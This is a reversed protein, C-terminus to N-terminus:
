IKIIKDILNSIDINIDYPLKIINNICRLKFDNINIILRNSTGIYLLNGFKYVDGYRIHLKIWEDWNNYIIFDSSKNDLIIKDYLYYTGDYYCYVDNMSTLFEKNYEPHTYGILEALECFSKPLTNVNIISNHNLDSSYLNDHSKSIYISNKIGM